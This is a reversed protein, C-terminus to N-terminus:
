KNKQAVKSLELNLTDLARKQYPEADKRTFVPTVAVVLKRAGDYDHRRYAIQAQLLSVGAGWDPDGALQTVAPIDIDGLLKSAEDVRGLGILCAALTSATGGTLGAGAGFAKVSSEYAKRANVEGEEYRGSRCMALSGDSLTAIAFFSLPGRKKVALEHIAM